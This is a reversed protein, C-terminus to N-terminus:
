VWRWKPSIGLFDGHFKSEFFIWGGNRWRAPIEEESEQFLQFPHRRKKELTSSLSQYIKIFRKPFLNLDNFLTLRKWSSCPRKSVETGKTKSPIHIFSITKQQFINQRLLCFAYGQDLQYLISIGSSDITWSKKVMGAQFNSKTWWGDITWPRAPHRFNRIVIWDSVM